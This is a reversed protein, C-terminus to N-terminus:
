DKAYGNRSENLLETVDKPVVIMLAVSQRDLEAKVGMAFGMCYSNFVGKTSLGYEKRQAVKKRAFRTCMKYAYMYVQACVDLDSRYGMFWFGDSVSMKIVFM